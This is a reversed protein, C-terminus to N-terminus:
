NASRSLVAEGAALIEEFSRFPCLFVSGDENKIVVSDKEPFYHAVDPFLGKCVLSERDLSFMRSFESDSYFVLLSSGDKSVSASYRGDEAFSLNLDGTISRDNTEIESLLEGSATDYVRIDGYAPFLILVRDGDAFLLKRVSDPPIECPIVRRVAGKTLDTICLEREANFGALLPDKEGVACCSILEDDMDPLAVWKEKEWFCCLYGKNRDEAATLDTKMSGLILCGSAGAGYCYYVPHGASVLKEPLPLKKAAEGDKWVYLVPGAMFRVDVSATYVHGNPHHFSVYDTFMMRDDQDVPYDYESGAALDFVHGRFLIKGDETFFADSMTRYLSGSIPMSYVTDPRIAAPDIVAATLVDAHLDEVAVVARNGSPSPLIMAFDSQLAPIDTNLPSLEPNELWRVVSVRKPDNEPVLAFVSSRFGCQAMEADQLDFGGSFSDTGRDFSLEGTDLAQTVTGDELVLGVCNERYLVAAAIFSQLTKEWVTEGSARDLLVLQKGTGFAIREPTADLLDVRYHVNSYYRLFFNQSNDVTRIFQRNWQASASYLAIWGPEQQYGASAALLTGSDFFKMKTHLDLYATSLGRDALVAKGSMTDYVTLSGDKLLVAARLGGDSVALDQIWAQTTLLSAIVKGGATEVINVTFTDSYSFGDKNGQAYIMYTEDPSFAQFGAETGELTWLVEGDSMRLLSNGAFVADPNRLCALGTVFPMSREWLLDGSYTDFCRLVNFADATVVRAGNETLAMSRIATPQEFSQDFALRDNDYLHLTRALAYEAEAVYPRPSERSPLARLAYEVAGNIDGDRYASESLSALARSENIQSSLLQERIRANRELLMGVFVAAICLAAGSAIALRRHRYRQERRYLADYPCGILAALIRLSETKLRRLRGASTDAVINAALPESRSVVNGNEDRVEVLEKPFAEAPSGDALIALVHDRDHHQLFYDIEQLCWLSESTEPTCVVILYESNDLAYQINDSLTGVLPLEDQDRFVYGLKKQGNKRLGKPIIYHEIRRHIATAVEMHLPLHRYSIFAIYKRELDQNM